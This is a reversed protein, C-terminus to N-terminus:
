TVKEFLIKEPWNNLATKKLLHLQDSSRRKLTM